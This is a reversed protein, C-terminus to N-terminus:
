PERRISEHRPAKAHTKEAIGIERLYARYIAVAQEDSIGRGLVLRARATASQGASLDRGLLSFYLSRHGEAAHPTAVAFCDDPPAMVLATLGSAADRRVALPGALPPMVKWDVPNPQRKWRGDRITRAAEEDRPFMQWPGYAPKAELFGAKGSTEPCAKVYVASVPFGNFYSALFVEFRPLAKRAKVTTAVDVTGPGKWRYVAKMDLPHADDASWAVEVAGDSLLESRSTWDWAGGGYRAGGDLLRYHSLWGYAGALPAGSAADTVPGLGLSKGGSRLTGRVLGTDFRYEKGEAVFALRAPAQPAAAAPPAGGAPAPAAALGAEPLGLAILGLFVCAVTPCPRTM